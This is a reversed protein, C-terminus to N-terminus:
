RSDQYRQCYGEQEPSYCTYDDLYFVNNKGVPRPADRKVFYVGARDIIAPGEVVYVPSLTKKRNNKRTIGINYADSEREFEFFQKFTMGHGSGFTIDLSNLLDYKKNYKEFRAQAGNLWEKALAKDTNTFKRINKRGEGAEAMKLISVMELGRDKVSLIKKTAASDAKYQGKKKLHEPSLPLVVFDGNDNASFYIQDIDRGAYQKLMKNLFFVTHDVKKWPEYPNGIHGLSHSCKFKQWYEGQSYFVPVIPINLGEIGKVPIRDDGKIIGKLPSPTESEIVWQVNRPLFLIIPIDSTKIKINGQNVVMNSLTPDHNVVRKISKNEPIIVHFQTNEPLDSLGCSRDIHNYRRQLLKLVPKNNLYSIIVKEIEPTIGGDLKAISYAIPILKQYKDRSPSRHKKYNNSFAGLLIKAEKHLGSLAADNNGELDSLRESILGQLEQKQQRARDIYKESRKLAEISKKKEGIKKYFDSILIFSQAGRYKLKFSDAIKFAYSLSQEYSSINKNQYFTESIKLIYPITFILEEDDWAHKIVDGFSPAKEPSIDQVVLKYFPHTIKSKINNSLESKDSEKLIFVLDTYLRQKMLYVSRDDGEIKIRSSKDNLTDALKGADEINGRDLYIKALQAYAAPMQKSNLPVTHRTLRSSIRDSMLRALNLTVKAQDIFGYKYLLESITVLEGRKSNYGYGTGQQMSRIPLLINQVVNENLEDQGNLLAKVIEIKALKVPKILYNLTPHNGYVDTRYTEIKMQKQSALLFLERAKTVQDKRKVLELVIDTLYDSTQQEFKRVEREIGKNINQNADEQKMKGKKVLDFYSGKIRANLKEMYSKTENLLYEMAEINKNEVAKLAARFILETRRSNGFRELVELRQPIERYRGQKIYSYIINDLPKFRAKRGHSISSSRQIAAAKPFYVEVAQDLARKADESKGISFYLGSILNLFHAKEEPFKFSSSANIFGDVKKAYEYSKAKNGKMLQAQSIEVYVLAKEVPTKIKEAAEAAIKFNNSEIAGTVIGSWAWEYHRKDQLLRREKPHPTCCVIYTEEALKYADKYRGISAYGHSLTLLAKSYSLSPNTLRNSALEYAADLGENAKTTQGKKYHDKAKGVLSSIKFVRKDTGAGSGIMVDLFEFTRDHKKIAPSANVKKDKNLDAKTIEGTLKGMFFDDNLLDLNRIVNEYRQHKAYEVIIEYLFDLYERTKATGGISGRSTELNLAQSSNSNGYKFFSIGDVCEQAKDFQQKKLPEYCNEEFYRRNRNGGSFSKQFLSDEKQEVASVLHEQNRAQKYFTYIESSPTISTFNERQVMARLAYNEAVEYEQLKLLREIIDDVMDMREQTHHFNVIQIGINAIGKILTEYICSSQSSVICADIMAVHTKMEDSLEPEKQTVPEPAKKKLVKKEETHTKVKEQFIKTEIKRYESFNQFEGGEYFVINFCSNAGKISDGTVKHTLTGLLSWQLNEPKIEPGFIIFNNFNYGLNDWTNKGISDVFFNSQYRATHCTKKITDQGWNKEFIIIDQGWGVDIINNGKGAFVTDNGWSDDIENNLDSLIYFQNGRPSKIKTKKPKIFLEMDMNLTSFSNVGINKPHVASSAKLKQPYYIPLRGKRMMDLLISFKEKAEEPWKSIAQDYYVLAEKKTQEKAVVVHINLFLTCFVAIFLRM